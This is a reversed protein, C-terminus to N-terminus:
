LFLTNTQLSGFYLPISKLSSAIAQMTKMSTNEAQNCLVVTKGTAHKLVGQQHHLLLTFAADDAKATDTEEWGFCCEGMKRGWGSMGMVALTATTFDPVVPDFENHLKLPKHRAGDAELLLVDYSQKLTYLDQLPPALAKGAGQLAYFVREGPKPSYSFITSDFFYTDCGYARHKPPELKTTTSVLVRKGQHAYHQALLILATTKGGSGTISICESADTISACLSQLLTAM